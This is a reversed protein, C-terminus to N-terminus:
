RNILGRAYQSLLPEASLPLWVKIQGAPDTIELCYRQGFFGSTKEIRRVSSWPLLFPPHFPRFLFLVSFHIGKEGFIVRVVNRYTGLINGFRSLPSKCVMGRPQVTAPYRQAFKRWGSRSVVFAAFLWAAAFALPVFVLLAPLSTKAPDMATPRSNDWQL